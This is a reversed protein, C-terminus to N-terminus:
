QQQCFYMDRPALRRAVTELDLPAVGRLVRHTPLIVIATDELATLTMPVYGAAPLEPHREHYALATEYRHHGDGIYLRRGEFAAAIAETLALDTVVRLRHRVGDPDTAEADPPRAAARALLAAVAGDPDRYLSFIPSLAATTAEMLALRDAKPGSLTREHPLIVGADFPVLRVAALLGRRTLVRDGADEEHPPPFDSETVYLAPAAERALVGTQRWARYTAAARTYRNERADDGPRDPAFDVQVINYPGLALLRERLEPSIVDYPPALCADLPGALAPDFRLGRFPRVTAM